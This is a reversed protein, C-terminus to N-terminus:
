HDTPTERTFDYVCVVSQMKMKLNSASKTFLGLRGMSGCPFTKREGKWLTLTWGGVPVHKCTKTPVAWIYIHGGINSRYRQSRTDAETHSSSKPSRQSKASQPWHYLHKGVSLRRRREAGTSNLPLNLGAFTHAIVTKNDGM